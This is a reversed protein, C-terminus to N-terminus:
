CHALRQEDLEMQQALRIQETIEEQALMLREFKAQERRRLDKLELEREKIRLYEYSSEHRQT